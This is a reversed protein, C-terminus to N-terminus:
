TKGAVASALGSPPASAQAPTVHVPINSLATMWYMIKSQQFNAIWTALNTLGGLNVVGKLATAAANLFTVLATLIAGLIGLYMLATSIYPGVIPLTAVTSLLEQVWAPLASVAPAPAVAPTAAAPAAVVPSTPSPQATPADQAFSLSAMMLMAFCLIWKM